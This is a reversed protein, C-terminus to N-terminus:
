RRCRREGPLGEQVDLIRYRRHRVLEAPHRRAARRRRFRAGDDAPHLRPRGQVERRDRQDGVRRHRVPAARHEQQEAGLDDPLRHRRRQRRGRRRRGRRGEPRQPTGNGIALWRVNRRRWRRRPAAEVRGGSSMCTRPRGRCFWRSAPRWRIPTSARRRCWPRCPRWARHRRHRGARDLRSIRGLAHRRRAVHRRGARQRAARHHPRRPDRRVRGRGQRAGRRGAARQPRRHLAGRLGLGAQQLGRARHRGARDQGPEDGRRPRGAGDGRGPQAHCPHLQHRAPDAAGEAGRADQHAPLSRAGVLPEDLLLVQPDTILARALAVRQQQGGSLQAPLRGAFPEMQVRKLM